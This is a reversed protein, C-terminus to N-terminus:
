ARVMALVAAAAEDVSVKDTNIILDYHTPLERELQYFRRFFDARSKDSEAVEDLAKRESMSRGEGIRRARTVDSATVLIRMVDDRKGLPIAAGHAVIVVFEMDATERIVDVIMQEYTPTDLDLMPPPIAAGAVAAGGGSKALNDLIRSLLGKRAEVKSLEQPTVGAVAAARDIIESDVYRFGLDDALREGLTEGGAGLTRAITIVKVHM